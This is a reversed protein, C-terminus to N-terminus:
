SFLINNYVNFLMLPVQYMIHPIISINFDLCLIIVISWFFRSYYRTDVLYFYSDGDDHNNYIIWSEKPTDNDDKAKVEVDTDDRM